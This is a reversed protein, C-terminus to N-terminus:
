LPTSGGMKLTGEMSGAGGEGGVGLSVIGAKAQAAVLPIREIASVVRILEDYLRTIVPITEGFSAGINQGTGIAVTGLDSVSQSVQATALQTNGAAQDVIGVASAIGEAGLEQKVQEIIQNKADQAQLQQRVQQKIQDLDWLRTVQNTLISGAAAQLAGEDGSQMAETIPQWFDLGAFQQNLSQLWESGFGSTAVTALRRAAEDFRATEEPPQWVEDLTPKVISEIASGVREAMEKAVKAMDGAAKKAQAAPDTAGLFTNPDYSGYSGFDGASQGAKGLRQMTPMQRDIDQMASLIGRLGLEFPTPSGPLFTGLDIDALGSFKDKIGDIIGFDLSLLRDFGGKIAEVKDVLPEAATKMERFAKAGGEIATALLNAGVAVAEVAIVVADLVGELAKLAIEAGNIESPSGGFAVVIRDWADQIITMAPGLRSSLESTFEKFIEVVRPLINTAADTMGALMPTLVPLLELGMATAAESLQAKLARTKNTWSEATRIADGQADTTGKMLLNIRAQVKAQEFQTGTLEDWGNAAMEAKLTNENIVVGFALANEHSGVLTGQLRRLAEDMPMDNFSGLDVALQTLMTSLEGADQEAFGLPKLVDGFASAMGQLEYTNRGAANGFDDLAKTVEGGITPFVTNFKGLMEEADAGLSILKAGAAVAGVGLGALATAGAAGISKLAGGLGGVKDGIGGLVKSAQDKATILIELTQAM